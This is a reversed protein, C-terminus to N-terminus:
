GNEPHQKNKLLRADLFSKAIVCWSWFAFPETRGLAWSKCLAKRQSIAPTHMLPITKRGSHVHVGSLKINAARSQDHDSSFVKISRNAIARLIIM